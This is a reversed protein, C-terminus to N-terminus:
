MHQQEEFMKYASSITMLEDLFM